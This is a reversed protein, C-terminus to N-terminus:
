EDSFVASITSHLTETNLLFHIKTFIGDSITKVFNVDSLSNIKTELDQYDFQKFSLSYDKPFYESMGGFDPYIIPVGFMAAECLIRPQGEVLKTATIVAKSKKIIQLTDEHSKQGLFVIGSKKYQNKLLNLQDGTGVIKLELSNKYLKDWTNLLEALGKEETVRGAYVVYNSQSNYSNTSYNELDIPNYFIKIKKKDIGLEELFNAHYNNM